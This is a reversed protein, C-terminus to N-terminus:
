KIGSQLVSDFKDKNVESLSSSDRLLIHVFKLACKITIKNIVLLNIFVKMTSPILWLFWLAGLHFKMNVFRNLYHIYAKRLLKEPEGQISAGVKHYILSKTDCLVVANLKRLRLSLEIDEEGFFFKESFRGIKKFYNTRFIICCGTAFSVPFVPKKFSIDQINKKAFFYKRSGFKSIEGGCNWIINKDYFYRIQPIVSDATKLSNLLPELFDTEVVTDNNLFLVYEYLNNEAYISGLNCGRAFGHNRGSLFLHFNQYAVTRHLDYESKLESSIQIETSDGLLNEMGATLFEVSENKSCNDIILVDASGESVRKVNTLSRCCDITDQSGNWNLLVILTKSDNM